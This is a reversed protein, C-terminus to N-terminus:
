QEFGSCATEKPNNLDHGEGTRKPKVAVVRIVPPDDSGYPAFGTQEQAYKVLFGRQKLSHILEDLVIFRRYHNNYFFANHEVQKGKGFLPDNIGRVEIFLKGGPRLGRFVNNLLIQEQNRNIAHITFRSYAYDYSDPRHIDSNVFDSCLFEVDALGRSQLQSIAEQSTDLATVHLGYSAFFVADRGNGCGLEVIQRGPEVLTAVHRAFPSPEESCVRDKYYQDWYVVNDVTKKEDM